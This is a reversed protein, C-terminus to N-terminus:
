TRARSSLGVSCALDRGRLAGGDAVKDRIRILADHIEPIGFNSLGGGHMNQAQVIAKLENKEFSRRPEMGQAPKDGRGFFVWYSTNRDYRGQIKGFHIRLDRSAGRLLGQDDAVSILAKLEDFYFAEHQLHLNEATGSPHEGICLWRNRSWCPLSLIKSISSVLPFGSATNTVIPSNWMTRSSSSVVKSSSFNSAYTKWDTEWERHHASIKLFFFRPSTSPSLRHYCGASHICCSVAHL